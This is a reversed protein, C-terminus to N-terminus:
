GSAASDLSCAEFFINGVNELHNFRYAASHKEASSQIYSSLDTLM